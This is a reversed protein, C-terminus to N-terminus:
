MQYGIDHSSNHYTISVICYNPKRDVNFIMSYDAIGRRINLHTDTTFYFSFQGNGQHTKLFIITVLKSYKYCNLRWRVQMLILIILLESLKYENSIRLSSIMCLVISCWLKKMQMISCFVLAKEDVYSRNRNKDRPIFSHFANM